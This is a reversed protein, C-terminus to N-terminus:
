KETFRMRVIRTTKAGVSLRTDIRSCLLAAVREGESDPANWGPVVAVLAAEKQLVSYKMGTMLDSLKKRGRMGLPVMWDGERWPRVLLPFALARADAAIVGGPQKADYGDPKDFVEVEITEPGICYKGPGRIVVTPVVAPGATLPMIELRGAATALRHTGSSFTKGAFPGCGYDSLLGSIDDLMAGSFGYPELFRFLLYKWHRQSLLGPVDIVTPAGERVLFRFESVYDDLVDAAEAFRAMDKGLTKYLSPNLSLLEPFVLNRLRNRRADNEANTRDERWQFGKQEMWKRIEERSTGLLPRVVVVGADCLEPLLEPDESREDRGSREAQPGRGNLRGRAAVSGSGRGSGIVGSSPIGRLGKTGTGRLLNLILTEANDGANHATALADFGRERCLEGFWAYRLERAAMEVSVGNRSAYGLTDFRRVLCETGLEECAKRVFAEDGDSEEGRLRFNCHAVAFSAGPFLEPARHLMYM